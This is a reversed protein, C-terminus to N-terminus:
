EKEIKYLKKMDSHLFCGPITMPVVGFFLGNKFLIMLDWGPENDNTEPYKFVLAFTREVVIGSYIMNKHFIRLRFISFTSDLRPLENEGYKLRFGNNWENIKLTDVDYERGGFILIENNGINSVFNGEYTSIKNQNILKLLDSTISQEIWKDPEFCVEGLSDSILLRNIVGYVGDSIVSKAFVPYCLCSLLLIVKMEWEM